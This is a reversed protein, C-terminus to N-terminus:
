AASGLYAEIVQPHNRIADPKGETLLRGFNLVTILDCLGMVAQMDHEVLLMTVGGDRVKRVLGMMVQTEEPNMGAFPEDLLLLKPRAALAVAMGLAKQLGHPLNAALETEREALGIFELVELAEDRARKQRAHDLGLVASLVNSRAAIHRGVLINDLVTMEQFVTTAQFTRVLGLEAIRSSKMGAVDRGDYVIRGATPSYFGSLVNFTTTKGAGNPGILGRIEGAEVSFSLDDIATLGGFRKSLHSVELIAM